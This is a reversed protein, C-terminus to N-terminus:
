KLKIRSEINQAVQKGQILGKEIAERFHIAGYLRSIGAEQAAENFSNFTRPQYGLYLNTSDTFSINDGLLYTLMEACAGSCVSHGSPYEPFPPTIDLQGTTWTSQGPFYNKIYTEPRLLNYRFKSDWCSIFADAGALGTMAYLEATKGLKLNKSHVLYQVIGTWHGSPTQSGTPDSWWFRINNQEPTRNAATNFVELAQHGFSSSTDTSFPVSSPINFQSVYSLAFPRVLNWYPETPKLHGPDTPVWYEPHGTYSPLNYTLTRTTTFNDGAVWNIIANAVLVGREKSRDALSTNVNNHYNLYTSHLDEILQLSTPTLNPIISKAINYMAENVVIEYHLEKQNKPISNILFGNLQGQLSKNGKIGDVVSEYTTVGAYAYLRSAQPPNISQEKVIRRFLNMWDIANDSKYDAATPYTPYEPPIITDIISDKKKKCSFLIISGLFSLFLIKPILHKM